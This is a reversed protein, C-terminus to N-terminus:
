KKELEECARKYLDPWKAEDIQKFATAKFEGLLSLVKSVGFNTEVEYMKDKVENRTLPQATYDRAPPESQLAPAAAAAKNEAEIKTIVGANVGELMGTSVPETSASSVIVGGSGNSLVKISSPGIYEIVKERLAEANIATFKLEIM